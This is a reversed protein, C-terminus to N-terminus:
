KKEETLAPVGNNYTAMLAFLGVWREDPPNPVVGDALRIGQSELWPLLEMKFQPVGLAGAMTAGLWGLNAPLQACFVSGISQGTQVEYFGISSQLEKILKRILTAGMSTFDFTNSYFLKKASEEDKLGLEKLVVPIMAATGSPIPRSIEVGDASLIFSQTLETGIELLLVPSKSQKFKLYNILAGLTAVTSLELCEPYVGMELLKEQTATIDDSPVGCFLVEKQMAKVADYESGDASNLVRVTYKEPEIRFQQALIENFYAPEKIRKLDLTQRRVIRRPPYVGCKAMAYGTPGTGEMQKIYGVLAEQDSLPLEKLEEVLIPAVTQSLRAILASHEGIEVCFGKSKTAFSFM